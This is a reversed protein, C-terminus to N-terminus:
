HQVLKVPISGQQLSQQAAQMFAFIELTESEAVSPKKERMFRVIDAVQPAYGVNTSIMEAHGGERYLVAGYTTSDEMLRVTGVRGDSWTAVIVDAKGSRTQTVQAVGPGMLRYLSEISHIGYYTLDLPFEEIYHAPGWAEVGLLHEPRPDCGYRISSTSFWPIHQQDLLAAIAQADELSSALPKDIFIPKGCRAAERLEQLRLRADVSLLLIGDINPCLEAISSVFPIKWTTQLTASLKEIRDHSIALSSGGRYAVTIRAGPVHDKEGTGNLIRTFEVAHTSDTGLLALRLDQSQAELQVPHLLLIAAIFLWIRVSRDNRSHGEVCGM